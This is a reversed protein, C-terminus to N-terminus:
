GCLRTGGDGVGLGVGVVYGSIYAGLWVAMVWVAWCAWSCSAAEAGV